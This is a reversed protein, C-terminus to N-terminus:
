QLYNEDTFLEILRDPHIRAYEFLMELDIDTQNTLTAPEIASIGTTNQLSFFANVPQSPNGHTFALKSTIDAVSKNLVVSDHDLIIIHDLITDIDRVQHTSILIIRDSHLHNVMLRRFQSKGSIDLGNTPEDMILLSTNCALAFSLLAKKKQGMSMASLKASTDIEFLEVATNFDEISFNPYFRSNLEVYKNLSVSPFEMEEPVIFIDALTSPLHLATNENNFVVSGADPTLLGAILYLLTSKGAGNPGLVGCISGPEIFLNFDSIVRKKKSYAFSLNSISLM